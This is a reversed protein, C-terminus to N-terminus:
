GHMTATTLALVDSNPWAGRSFRRSSGPSARSQPCLVVRQYRIAVLSDKTKSAVPPWPQSVANLRGIPLDDMTRSIGM